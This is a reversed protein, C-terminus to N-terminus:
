WYRLCNFFALVDLSRFRYISTCTRYVETIPCWAFLLMGVFVVGRRLSLAVHVVLRNVDYSFPFLVAAMNVPFPQM